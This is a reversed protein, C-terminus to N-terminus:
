QLKKKNSFLWYLLEPEAFATDWSNHGAFDNLTFRPFGGNKLVANVMDLSLTPDVITDRAGHFVWLAVKNSYESVSNPNGGGCIPFAAAFMDPKRYLLEFTGMGGMSLGGIYIQDDKTIKKKVMTDMLDIVLGLSKNPEEGYQFSFKERGKKSRDVSISSWYDSEPCQPFIVISPYKERFEPDLFLKSGHVLQKQNDSGREGAGHLFLIVAYEKNQSFDVPWLIRYNLTDSGKIFREKKYLNSNQAIIM